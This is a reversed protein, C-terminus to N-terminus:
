NKIEEKNNKMDITAENIADDITKIGDNIVSYGIAAGFNHSIEKLEKNLKRIYTVAQKETYSVLYLLFENGNTRIIESNPIQNRILVNAAEKITNDGENHGYNDNIYAINNLDIIIIVQPYIESDDWLDINDNLYDRNKLSTLSDLYKLKEEKTLINKRKRINKPRFRIILFILIGILLLIGLVKAFDILLIPLYNITLLQNFGYNVYKNTLVFTLYFNLFNYMMENENIGRITYTYDDQLYDIYDIKYNKLKSNRYYDYTYYDMIKYDTDSTVLSDTDSYKKSNVELNTLYKDLKTNKLVSVTKNTLSNTSNITDFKNYKSVIVYKEDFISVTNFIDMLYTEEQYNNFYFDIENKNFAELLKDYTSYEVYKIKISSTKVFNSIVGNNIGIYNNNITSDFPKNSVYGYIYEKSKFKTKYQEEINSFNFFSNLLYSNYDRTYDNEEWKTYYKKIINNLKSNDGLRIVFYTKIEDINYTIFYNQSLIMNLCETKPLAILNVEDSALALNLQEMTDYTKYAINNNKLYKNVLELESSITGIAVDKIENLSSYKINNKSVLVYNDTLLVIDKKTLEDTKTFAYDTSYESNLKYSVKNFTLGTDDELSNLFDFALGQGNYSVIPMESYISIDLVNNKNKEIWMTELVTLNTEKDNKTFYIIGFTSALLVIVLITLFVIKKNM